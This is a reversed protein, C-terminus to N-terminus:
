VKHRAKLAAETKSRAVASADAIHLDLGVVNWLAHGVEGEVLTYQRSSTRRQAWSCIRSTGRILGAAQPNQYSKYKPWDEPERAGSFRFNLCLGLLSTSSFASVTSCARISWQLPQEDYLQMHIRAYMCTYTFTHVYLPMYCIHRSGTM